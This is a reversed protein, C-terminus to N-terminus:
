VIPVSKDLKWYHHYVPHIRCATVESFGGTEMHPIANKEVEAKELHFPLIVNDPLELCETSEKDFVPALVSWQTHAFTEIKSNHWKKFAKILENHDRRLLPIQNNEMKRPFPLNRDSLANDLPPCTAPGNRLLILIAFLKKADSKVRHAYNRPDIVTKANERLIEEVVSATILTELECIPIFYELSSNGYFIRADRPNPRLVDTMSSM